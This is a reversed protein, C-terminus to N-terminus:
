RQIQVAELTEIYTHVYILIRVFLVLYQMALIYMTHGRELTILFRNTIQYLVFLCMRIVCYFHLPPSHLTTLHLTPCRYPTAYLTTIHHSAYYVHITRQSTTNYQTHHPTTRSTAYHMYITHHATICTHHPM